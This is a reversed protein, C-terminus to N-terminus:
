AVHNWTRGVRVGRVCNPSVGFRRALAAHSDDSARIQKVIEANIISKGNREGPPAVIRKRGKAVMDDHNQKPTGVSLHAPNVCKPNDCSHMVHMGVPIELKNHLKWSVRHAGESKNLRPGLSINGYGKRNSVGVWEWCDTGTDKNVNRWFREEVSAHTWKVSDTTGNKKFRIYHKYCYGFAKHKGGCADVKCVKM